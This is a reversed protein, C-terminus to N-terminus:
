YPIQLQTVFMFTDRNRLGPVLLYRLFKIKNRLCELSFPSKVREPLIYKITKKQWFFSLLDFLYFLIFM